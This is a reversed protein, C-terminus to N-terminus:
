IHTHLPARRALTDSHRQRSDIESRGQGLVRLPEMGLDTVAVV